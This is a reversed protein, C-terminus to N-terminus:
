YALNKDKYILYNIISVKQIKILILIKIQALNMYIKIKYVIDEEILGGTPSM